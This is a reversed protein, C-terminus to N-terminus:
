EESHSSDAVPAKEKDETSEKVVEGTGANNKVEPSKTVARAAPAPRGGHGYAEGEPTAHATPKATAEKMEDETLHDVRMVLCRLISETLRADRELDSIKTADAEFFTLVYVGRKRGRIEYALRREEWKGCAITRAEARGMLRNIEGQLGEWDNAMGPDFLFMAEYKRKM